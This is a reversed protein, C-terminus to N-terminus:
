ELPPLAKAARRSNILDLVQERFNDFDSQNDKIYRILASNFLKRNNTRWTKFLSTKTSAKDLDEKYINCDTCTKIFAQKEKEAFIKDSGELKFLFAVVSKEIPFNLNDISPIKTIFPFHASDIKDQPVDPDLIIISDELLKKGNKALSVLSNYSSGTSDTIDSIFEIHKCVTSKLIKKMVMIALEDECIINVKYPSSEKVDLLTLEKYITKYDPNIMINYNNDSGVQRTSINNIVIDEFGNSLDSQLQICHSIIYLSHTTCIVQVNHKQSWKLLYNILAVQSSPHLSAEVEDICFLGQLSNLNTKYKEFALMKCLILGLNDEGSSISNFDYYSNYPAITNKSKSDSIAESSQYADRQMIKQYAKSIKSQDEPPIKIDTRQADTEIIPFLRKLNLYSTNLLFNGREAKNDPGVTVRHRAGSPYLRIPESLTQNTTTTAQLYYIYEETDKDISLKFVDSHKTKLDKGYMDKASNPSSFPHAILGLISSKMTGNKGTLLTIHKGLKIDRNMLSRFKDIHIGTIYNFNVDKYNNYGLAVATQTRNYKSKKLDFYSM